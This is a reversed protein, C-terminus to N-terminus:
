CKKILRIDMLEDEALGDRAAALAGLSHNVFVQGHNSDTSLRDFLQKILGQIDKALSLQNEQDKSKWHRVEEFILKLYLPLGCNNFLTMVKQLQNQQVRRKISHLWSTLLTEGEQVSMESVKLM